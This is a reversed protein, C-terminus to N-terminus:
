EVQEMRLEVLEARLKDRLLGTAEILAELTVEPDTGPQLPRTADLLLHLFRDRLSTVEPSLTVVPSRPSIAVPRM